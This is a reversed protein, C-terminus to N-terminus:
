LINLVMEKIKELSSKMEVVDQQIKINNAKSGITNIERGIEQTIFNLKKGKAIIENNIIEHFFDCHSKLRVLEENIDWKEVYYLIEQEMRSEDISEDTINTSIITKLKEAHDKKRNKSYTKIKKAYSQINNLNETLDIAMSEGEKLRYDMLNEAASIIVSKIEPWHSENYNNGKHAWIDSAEMALSFLPENKLGLGKALSELTRYKEYFAEHDVELVEGERQEFSLNLEIKGRLLLQGLYQRVELEKEKITLPMRIHLDLFRSNLSKLECSIQQNEMEISGYGFGTMSHVSYM